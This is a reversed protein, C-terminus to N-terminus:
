QPAELLEGVWLGGRTTGRLLYEGSSGDDDSFSVVIRVYRPDSQLLADVSLLVHKPFREFSVRRVATSTQQVHMVLPEAELAEVDLSRPLNM